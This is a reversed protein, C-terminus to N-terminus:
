LETIAFVPAPPYGRRYIFRYGDHQDRAGVSARPVERALSPLCPEIFGAPMLRRAPSTRSLMASFLTMKASARTLRALAKAPQGGVAKGRNGTCLKGIEHRM